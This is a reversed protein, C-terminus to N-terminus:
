GIYGANRADAELGVNEEGSRAGGIDAQVGVGRPSRANEAADRL